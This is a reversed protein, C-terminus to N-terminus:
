ASRLLASEGEARLRASLPEGATATAELATRALATFDGAGYQPLSAWLAVRAWQQREENSGAYATILGQMAALVVATANPDGNRAADVHGNLNTWRDGFANAHDGQHEADLACPISNRGIPARLEFGPRRAGCTNESM